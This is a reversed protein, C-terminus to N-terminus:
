RYGFVPPFVAVVFAAWFSYVPLFTVQWRELVAFPGRHLLFRAYLWASGTLNVLLILNEGLAAMRNPTFGFESIRAAIATLAVADVVLASTALLLQLGDFLDPPAQPDRASAAYLVLGVVLVLLLDFGILVEREVNIPSGTWAMTALFVLLLVTFLPTFLKTLVPAMNEVVSQKSEVLWSGIIVAGMAGCPLLWDVALWEADMEIAAFMMITFGTLVGGGLAILVYYIVLEGSFRVFDMRGGDAFWRGGVYAFGVVLWLAIPLHLVTLVETDSGTPFHFVNAFVAGAAFPLAWWLGSAGRSGRQWVFYVTLLPLVFLSANRAYFPEDIFGNDLRLGFLAPVKVALAAALALGLVILTEDWTRTGADDIDGSGVVLQRWLRESHECAFERSLADLSGMRKVAILFAEDAALGADTLAVVQDRLHGELEEVDPGHIARRRHLYRRWHAIHEELPSRGAPTTM